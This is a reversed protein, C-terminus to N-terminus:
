LIFCFIDYVHWELSHILCFINDALLDRNLTFVLDLYNSNWKISINSAHFQTKFSNLEILWSELVLEDM